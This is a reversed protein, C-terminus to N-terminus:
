RRTIPRRRRQSQPKHNTTQPKHCKNRIPDPHQLDFSVPYCQPTNPIGCQFNANGIRLLLQKLNGSTKNIIGSVGPDTDLFDHHFERTTKLEPDLEADVKQIAWQSRSNDTLVDYMFDKVNNPIIQRENETKELYMWHFLKILDHDPRFRCHNTAKPSLRTAPGANAKMKYNHHVGFQDEAYSNGFDHIKFLKGFSPIIFRKGDIKYGISTTTNITTFLINSEHFDGHMIQLQHLAMLGHITQFLMAFWEKESHRSLTWEKLTGQCLEYFLRVVGPNTRQTRQKSRTTRNRAIRAGYLLVINPTLGDLVLKTAAQAITAEVRGSGNRDDIQQQRVTKVVIKYVCNPTDCVVNITEAQIGPQLKQLQKNFPDNSNANAKAMIARRITEYNEILKCSM